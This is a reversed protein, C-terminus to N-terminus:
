GRTLTLTVEQEGKEIERFVQKEEVQLVDDYLNLDSVEGLGISELCKKARSNAMIIRGGREAVLLSQDLTDLLRNVLGLQVAGSDSPDAM